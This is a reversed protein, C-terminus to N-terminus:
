NGGPAEALWKKLLGLAAEPGRDAALRWLVTQGDIVRVTGARRVEPDTCRAFLAEVSRAHEVTMMLDAGGPPVNRKRHVAAIRARGALLRVGELEVLNAAEAPMPGFMDQIEDAIEGLVELSSARELQRYLSIRQSETPVYTKPFFAPLDLRVDARRRDPEALGQFRRVSAELLQCYLEYGIAAIHGSQEAGLINGAGRIELDRMAIQFGAGLESYREIARLRKAAAPTM